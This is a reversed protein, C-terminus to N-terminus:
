PNSFNKEETEGGRLLLLAIFSVHALSFLIACQNKLVLRKRSEIVTHTHTHTHTPLLTHTNLLTVTESVEKVIATVSQIM